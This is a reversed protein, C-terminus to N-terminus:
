QNINVEPAAHARVQLPWCGEVEVSMGWSLLTRVLVLLGLVALNRVTSEFTVTRVLDAAVMM